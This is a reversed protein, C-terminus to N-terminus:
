GGRSSEAAVIDMHCEERRSWSNQRSKNVQGCPGVRYECSEVQGQAEGEADGDRRVSDVEQEWRDSTAREDPFSIQFISIVQRSFEVSSALTVISPEFTTNHVWEAYAILSRTSQMDWVSREVVADAASACVQSEVPMVISVEISSSKMALANKVDM